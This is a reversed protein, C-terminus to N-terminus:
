ILRVYNKPNKMAMEMFSVWVLLYDNCIPTGIQMVPFFRCKINKSKIFDVVKRDIIWPPNEQMSLVDVTRCMSSLASLDNYCRLGSQYYRGEIKNAESEIGIRDSITENVVVSPTFKNARLLLIEDGTRSIGAQPCESLEVGCRILDNVINRPAILEESFYTIRKIESPEIKIPTKLDIHDLIVIKGIGGYDVPAVRHLHGLYNNLQSDPLKLDSFNPVFHTVSKIEKASFEPTAFAGVHMGREASITYINKLIESEFDFKHWGTLVKDGYSKYVLDDKRLFKLSPDGINVRVSIKM